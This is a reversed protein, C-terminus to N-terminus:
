NVDIAGGKSINFSKLNGNKQNKLTVTLQSSSLLCLDSGVFTTVGYLASYSVSLVATPYSDLVCSSGKISSVEVNVLTLTQIATASKDCNLDLKGKDDTRFKVSWNAGFVGACLLNSTANSQALRLLTQVKGLATNLVQDQSFSRFNVIAVISLVTIITIAVILEILTFGSSIQFKIKNM